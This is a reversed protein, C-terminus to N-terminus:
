KKEFHQYDKVSRWAGGWIFGYSCFLRHCLDGPMIKYPFKQSRDAYPRAGAPQVKRGGGKMTKVYPNYLPNIDVAKGWSHKSLKDTGSVKRYNFCTTNNAAMSRQDDADYNDILVMREIPYHADYLRRFIKLLDGAISKHCILEGLVTEDKANRHLVKLYRLDSVPLPCGQKYSKGEIRRLVKGGIEESTFCLGVGHRKVVNDAVVSGAQWTQLAGNTQAAMQLSAILFLFLLRLGKM